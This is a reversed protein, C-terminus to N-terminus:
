LVRHKHFSGVFLCMKIQNVIPTVAFINLTFNNSTDLIVSFHLYLEM